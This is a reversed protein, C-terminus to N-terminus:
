GGAILQGELVEEDGLFLEDGVRKKSRYDSLRVTGGEADVLEFDPAEVLEGSM